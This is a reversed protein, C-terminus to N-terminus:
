RLVQASRLFQELQAFSVGKLSIKIAKGNIDEGEFTGEIGREVYSKLIKFLETVAGSKVIALVFLGLTIPDGRTGTTSSSPPAEEVLEIGPLLAIDNQCERALRDFQEESLNTADLSAKIPMSKVGMSDPAGPSLASALLHRIQRSPLEVVEGFIMEADCVM